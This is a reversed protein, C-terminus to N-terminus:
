TSLGGVVTNTYTTGSAGGDIGSLLTVTYTGGANVTTVTGGDQDLITVPDCDGGPPCETGTNVEPECAEGTVDVMGSWVTRSANAPDLNTSSTQEFITVKWNGPPSMQVEGSTATPSTDGTETIPLSIGYGSTAANQAICYVSLGTTVSTFRILWYSPSVTARAAFVLNFSSDRAIRM